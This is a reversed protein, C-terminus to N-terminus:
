QGQYVINAKIYGDEGMRWSEGWVADAEVQSAKGKIYITQSSTWDAFAGNGISTVNSPISISTLSTCFGFAYSGIETLGAPLTISILPNVKFASHDIVTVSNPITVRILEKRAFTERGIQTITMGEIRPPINVTQKNGVYETIEASKGGDLPSVRFDSPSDYQQGCATFAIALLMAIGLGLKKNKM